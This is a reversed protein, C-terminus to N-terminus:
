QLFWENDVIWKAGIDAVIALFDGKNVYEAMIKRYRAKLEIEKATYCITGDLIADMEEALDLIEKQSNQIVEIDNEVYWEWIKVQLNEDFYREYMKKYLDLIFRLTLYKKRRKDYLKKYLVLNGESESDGHNFVTVCNVYAIPKRALLPFVMIGSPDGLFYKCNAFLYMDAFESRYCSNPYDVVNPIVSVDKVIAGMRVCKIAKKNMYESLLLFNDFSSDRVKITLFQVSEIYKMFDEKYYKEYYLSDRNFICIYNQKQLGLQCLLKKGIMEQEPTFRFYGNIGMNNSCYKYEGRFFMRSCDIGYEISSGFNVFRLSSFFELMIRFCFAPRAQIDLLDRAIMADFESNPNETVGDFKLRYFLCIEEKNRHQCVWSYMLGMGGINRIPIEVVMCSSYKKKLKAFEKKEIKSLAFIQNISVGFKKALKTIYVYKERVNLLYDPCMTKIVNKVQQRIM